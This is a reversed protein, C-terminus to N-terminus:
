KCMHEKGDEQRKEKERERAEMARERREEERNRLIPLERSAQRCRRSANGAQLTTKAENSVLDL